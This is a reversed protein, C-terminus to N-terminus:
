SRAADDLVGVRIRPRRVCLSLSLETLVKAVLTYPSLQKAPNNFTWANRNKWLEWCMICVFTDFGRREQGSFRRRALLWRDRLESVQEPMTFAFPGLQSGTFWTQRAHVCQMLIHEATDEEQECVFCAATHAQLGHRVRRDSTRIRHQAALWMFMKIKPAAKSKWIAEALKFRVGGVMLIRYTSETTYEGSESWPWVFADPVGPTLQIEATAVWLSFCERAVLEPLPAHEMLDHAWTLNHMGQEVTRTNCARTSVLKHLNPAIEIARQGLIWRDRWFLTRKGDGVTISVLSDFVQRAERDKIMPLGHWPRATDTRQLWEWRVRLALSQLRMNKIGLGGLELPRCVKPWAVLCQGGNAREEGAWLFGRLGIEVEEILWCPAETVLLHHVPRAAMVTQVLVRRGARAMLSRQWAPVIKTAAKVVTWWNDM